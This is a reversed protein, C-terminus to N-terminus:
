NSMKRFPCTEKNYPCDPKRESSEKRVSEICNMYEQVTLIDPRYEINRIKLQCVMEYLHCRSDVLLESLEYALENNDTSLVLSKLDDVSKEQLYAGSRLAEILSGSGKRLLQDYLDNLEPHHYQGPEAERILEPNGYEDILSGIGNMQRKESRCVNRFALNQWKDYMADYYDMAMREEEYQYWLNSELTESKDSIFAMMSLLILLLIPKLCTKM